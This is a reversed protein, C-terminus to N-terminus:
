NVSPPVTIKASNTFPLNTFPCSCNSSVSKLIIIVSNREPVKILIM